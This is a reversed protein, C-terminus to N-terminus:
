CNINMIFSFYYMGFFLVLFVIIILIFYNPNTIFDFNGFNGFYWSLLCVFGLLLGFPILTTTTYFANYEGHSM